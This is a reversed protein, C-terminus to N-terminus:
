ENKPNVLVFHITNMILQFLCCGDFQSPFPAHGRGLGQQAAVITRRHKSEVFLLLGDEILSIAKRLLLEIGKGFPHVTLFPPRVLREAHDAIVAKETSGDGLFIATGAEVKKRGAEHQLPECAPVM